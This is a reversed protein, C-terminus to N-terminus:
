FGSKINVFCDQVLKSGAVGVMSEIDGGYNSVSTAHLSDRAYQSARLEAFSLERAHIMSDFEDLEEETRPFRM